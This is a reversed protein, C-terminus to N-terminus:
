GCGNAKVPASSISETQLDWVHWSRVALTASAKKAATGDCETSLVPVLPAVAELSLCYSAVGM